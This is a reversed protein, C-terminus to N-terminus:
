PHPSRTWRHEMHHILLKEGDTARSKGYFQTGKNMDGPGRVITETLASIANGVAERLIIGEAHPCLEWIGQSTAHSRGCGLLLVLFLSRQATADTLSAPVRLRELAPPTM